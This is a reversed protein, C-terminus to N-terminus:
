DFNTQGTYVILDVAAKRAADVPGDIIPTDYESSSDPKLYFVRWRKM